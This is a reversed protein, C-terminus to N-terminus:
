LRSNRRYRRAREADCARCRRGAFRGDPSTVIHTNADDFPHGYPCEDRAAKQKWAPNGRRINETMGVWEVHAPNVCSPVGCLHDPTLDHGGRHGPKFGGPPMEGTSLWWAVRHASVPTHRGEVKMKFKGYGAVVTSTWLWCPGLDPRREPAPGNKDVKSWFRDTLPQTPVIRGERDRVDIM